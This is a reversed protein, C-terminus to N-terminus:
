LRIANLSILLKGEILASTLVDNFAFTGPNVVLGRVVFAMIGLYFLFLIPQAVTAVNYITWLVPHVDDPNVNEEEKKAEEEIRKRHEEMEKARTEDSHTHHIIPVQSMVIDLTKSINNERFFAAQIQGTYMVPTGVQMNRARVRVCVM